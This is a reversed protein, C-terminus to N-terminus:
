DNHINFLIVKTTTIMNDPFRYEVMILNAYYINNKCSKLTIKLQNEKQFEKSCLKM